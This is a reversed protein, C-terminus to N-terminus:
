ATRAWTDSRRAVRLGVREYLGVAGTTNEADVGLGVARKGRDALLVFADRLLAEGLGQRRWPRRVALVGVWGVTEDEGRRPRSICLGAIEDGEWAVRVLSADGAPGLNFATWAELSSPTYGWHDAFAENEAAHLAVAHREDFPRVEIGPPWAPRELDGDLSREMTYSSRTVAYGAGALLEGLAHDRADVSFRISGGTGVREAGRADAWAFLLRLSEDCGPLCRLDVWAVPTGDEAGAVDAYGETSGLDAIALRMDTAPDVNPLSFWTEVGIASEETEGVLAHSRANIVTAIRDADAVTPAVLRVGVEAM